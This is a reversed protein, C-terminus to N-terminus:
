LVRRIAILHNMWYGQVRSIKVVDGTHPAHIVLHQGLYIGVHGRLFLLDGVRLQDTDYVPTGSNIQEGTTRPLNVGAARYSQQVLSSCDCQKAPNGSHPATCSGGFHYPTGLQKLAWSIAVAVRPSTGAPLQFGPPLTTSIDGPIDIGDDTTCPHQITAFTAQLRTAIPEWQAYASPTASRQVEWAAVTVPLAPWNAIDLLGPQGGAGGTYFMTAAAIPSTRQSAPGWAARQQFLGLSDRDGWGLNRLRSEQIATAIAIIRGRPQVSLNTGVTDIIQANAIQAADIMEPGTGLRTGPQVPNTTCSSATAPSSDLVGAGVAVLPVTVVALVPAVAVIAIRVLSM